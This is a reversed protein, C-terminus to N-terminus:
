SKISPTTYKLYVKSGVGGLSIWVKGNIDMKDTLGIGAKMGYVPLSLLGTADFNTENDVSTIFMTSTLDLGYGYEVGFKPHGPKTTEATEMMSTNMVACGSLFMMLIVLYLALKKM